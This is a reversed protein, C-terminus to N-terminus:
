LVQHHNGQGVIHGVCQASFMALRLESLLRYANIPPHRVDVPTFLPFPVYHVVVGINRRFQHFDELALLYLLDLLSVPRGRSVSFGLLTIRPFESPMLLAPAELLGPMM